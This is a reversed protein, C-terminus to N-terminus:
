DARHGQMRLRAKAFWSPNSLTTWTGGAGESVFPGLRDLARALERLNVTVIGGGDRISCDFTTVNLSRLIRGEAIGPDDAGRVTRWGGIPRSLDQRVFAPIEKESHELADRIRVTNSDRTLLEPVELRIGKHHRGKRLARAGDAEWLVRIIRRAGEILNYAEIWCSFTWRRTRRQARISPGPRVWKSALRELRSWAELAGQRNAEVETLLAITLVRGRDQILDPPGHQVSGKKEGPLTLGGRPFGGRPLRNERWSRAERLFARRAPPSTPTSGSGLGSSRLPRWSGNWQRERHSSVGYGHTAGPNPAAWAGIPHASEV